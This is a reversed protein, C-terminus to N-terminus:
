VRERCSARGIEQREHDFEGYAIALKLGAKGAEATLGEELERYFGHERTLLAVGILGTRKAAARPGAWWGCAVTFAAAALLSLARAKLM